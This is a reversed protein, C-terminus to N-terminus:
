SPARKASTSHACGTEPSPLTGPFASGAAGVAPCDPLPTRAATLEVPARDLDVNGFAHQVVDTIAGLGIDEWGNSVLGIEAPEFATGSDLDGLLDPAAGRHVLDPYDGSVIARDHRAATVVATGAVRTLTEAVTAHWRDALGVLSWCPLYVVLELGPPEGSPEAPDANVTAMADPRPALPELPDWTIVFVRLAHAMRPQPDEIGPGSAARSWGVRLELLKKETIPPAALLVRLDDPLSSLQDDSM